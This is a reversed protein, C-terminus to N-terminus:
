FTMRRMVGAATLRDPGEGIVTYGSAHLRQLLTAARDPALARRWM